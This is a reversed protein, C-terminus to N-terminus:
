RTEGDGAASPGAARGDAPPLHPPPRASPFRDGVAIRGGGGPRPSPDGRKLRRWRTLLYAHLARRFRRKFPYCPDTRLLRALLRLSTRNWEGVRLFMYFLMFAYGDRFLKGPIDGRGTRLPEILLEYSRLMKWVDGSMNGDFVRYGVLLEPVLGFEFTEAIGLYFKWDECGQAGAEFLGPDFGGAADFAARRILPTSGNGALNSQIMKRYVAGEVRDGSIDTATCVDNEDILVWWCYVLGMKPGGAVLREVQKRIKEPHWLDDADVLAIFEHGAKRIGANRARAVGGNAQELLRVRPDERAIDRVIKATGDTSGDDVVIIELERYTQGRVSALTRAIWREANYAPIVVSVGPNM